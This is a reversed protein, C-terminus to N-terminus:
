PALAYRWLISFGKYREDFLNSIGLYNEIGIERAAFPLHYSTADWIWGYGAM